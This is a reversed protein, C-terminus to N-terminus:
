SRRERPRAPPPVNSTSSRADVPAVASRPSTTGADPPRHRLPSLATRGSAREPRGMIRWAGALLVAAVCTASLAISWSQHSDSGTLFGHVVAVAFCIWSFWHVFRWTGNQIRNRAVSTLWTAVMLDLAVTGLAVPLRRYTSAFPIVIAYLGVPVYSDMVTVAVHVGVFVVALLSISRHIENVEFRGFTTGGVRTTVLAGLVVTLTLLVLAVTGTARATYWLYPTTLALV